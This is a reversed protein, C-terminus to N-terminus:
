FWEPLNRKKLLKVTCENLDIHAAMNDDDWLVWLTSDGTDEEPEIVAGTYKKGSSSHWVIRDGINFM